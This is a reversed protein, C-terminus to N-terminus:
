LAWWWYLHAAFFVAAFLVIAWAPDPLKVKGCFLCVCYLRDAETCQCSLMARHEEM